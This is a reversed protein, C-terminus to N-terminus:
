TSSEQSGNWDQWLPLEVWNDPFGMEATTRHHFNVFSDHVLKAIRSTWTNGPSTSRLLHALICITAYVDESQDHPLREFGPLHAVAPTSVPTLQRNWLRAHHACINRVITLHILWNALPHHRSWKKKQNKSAGPHPTISFWDAVTRQDPSQMGDFLKSIDAFDLVDPLM